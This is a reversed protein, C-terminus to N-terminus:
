LFDDDIDYLIGGVFFKIFRIDEYRIMEEEEKWVDGCRIKLSVKCSFDVFNWCSLYSIILVM